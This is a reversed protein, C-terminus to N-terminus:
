PPTNPVFRATSVPQRTERLDLEPEREALKRGPPRQGVRRDVGREHAGAVGLV